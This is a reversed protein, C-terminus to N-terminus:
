IFTLATKLELDIVLFM